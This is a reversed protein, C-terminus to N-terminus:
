KAEVFRYAERPVRIEFRAGWGEDGTETITIDTISLIERALFLGMGTNEGVGREFIGEKKTVPVGIGNDEWFLFLGEPILAFHVNIATVKEGHRLSNDYLNYFVKELLPDAYIELGKLEASIAIEKGGLGSVIKGINQWVPAM